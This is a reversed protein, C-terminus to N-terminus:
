RAAKARRLRHYMGCGPGQGYWLNGSADRVVSYVTEYRGGTPTYRVAPNSMQQVRALVGGPWTTVNKGDSSLYATFKDAASFAEAERSNACDYCFSRGQSDYAVGTGGHDTPTPPHGCDLTATLTDSM